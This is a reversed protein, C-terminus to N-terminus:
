GLEELRVERGLRASLMALESLETIRLAEIPTTGVGPDDGRIAKILDRVVCAMGGEHSRWDTTTNMHYWPGGKNSFFTFPEPGDTILLGGETGLITTRSTPRHHSIWALDFTLTLDGDTRALITAHEEVDYVVDPPLDHEFGRFTTASVATIAPVGTLWLVNDMYYVGMDMLVGAVARKSDLFWHLGELIDIGPRGRRRYYQVSAHYIHGLDGAEIYKRALAAPGYRMRACCFVLKRGTEEATEVVARAEAVNIVCPKECIVHKGARMADISMRGHLFPPTAITVLEIEDIALLDKYDTFVKTESTGFEKARAKAAEEVVDCVAVLEVGNAAFAGLHDPAIAGCGILGAKVAKAM